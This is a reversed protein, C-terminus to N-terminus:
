VVAEGGDAAVEVIARVGVAVITVGDVAQWRLIISAEDRDDFSIGTIRFWSASHSSCCKGVVNNCAVDFLGVEEIESADHFIGAVLIETTEESFRADNARGDAGTLM